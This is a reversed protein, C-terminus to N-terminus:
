PLGSGVHLKAVSIDTGNIAGNVMIDERANSNTVTQGSQLKTQSVDTSNVIKNGTTDGILLNMSVETDPLVQSFSDTVDSLKITLKQVDAVGALNLTMSNGAFQPSGSISGTGSSVSPTGDVLNNTFTFVLTHNGGSSRCEVGPTGTLPLNIDFTGAGGHTKRSAAATLQLPPPTPAPTGQAVTSCSSFESTNGASDTATATIAKGPTLGIPFAVNYSANGSPNTRVKKSDLPMEGEGFNSSDCQANAFFELTFTTSATSNLTGQIGTISGNSISSSVIPYNQTHNPGADGDGMDNPSVGDGALDIGLSNNNAISNGRIQNGNTQSSQPTGVSIGNFANFSIVNGEGSNPGGIRTNKAFVLDVGTGNGIAQTGTIDTGIFNGRILNSDGGSLIRIGTANGSIINRAGATAGGITYQNAFNLYLGSEANGLPSTGTKDTGIFNGQIINTNGGCYIGSAQNGSIVNGAGPETGGVTNGSAVLFIGYINQSAIQGSRDTGIFNGQIKNGTSPSRGTTQPSVVYVGYFESSNIINRAASTTGGIVNNSADVLAVGYQGNYFYGYDVGEFGIMNGQVYNGDAGIWIGGRPESFFDNEGIFQNRKDPTTGGVVNDSSNLIGVGAASNGVVLNGEIRNGSNGNLFIASPPHGSGDDAGGFGRVILGRITTGGATVVLGDTLGNFNGFIEITLVANGVIDPGSTNVTAGAQSYGDVVVPDSIVPLASTVSISHDGTGPIAFEIRDPVTAPSNPHNNADAIAQRFSGAGSDNANSVTFTSGGARALGIVLLPLVCICRLAKFYFM